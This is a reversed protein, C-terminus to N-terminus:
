VSRSFRLRWLSDAPNFLPPSNSHSPRPSSKGASNAWTMGVPDWRSRVLNRALGFIGPLHPTNGPLRRGGLPVTFGGHRSGSNFCAKLAQNSAPFDYQFPLSHLHKKSSPFPTGLFPVGLPATSSAAAAMESEGRSLARGNKLSPSRFHCVKKQYSFIGALTIKKKVGRRM